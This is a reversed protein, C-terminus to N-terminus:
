GKKRENNTLISLHKLIAIYLLDFIHYGIPIWVCMMGTAQTDQCSGSLVFWEEFSTNKKPSFM